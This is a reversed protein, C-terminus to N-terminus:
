KVLGSFMGTPQSTATYTFCSANASAVVTIGTSFVAPPTGNFSLSAVGTTAGAIPICYIPTVAGTSPASTLNFVLMNGTNTGENKFVVGYLNGGSAKLVHSVESVTSVVPTIGITNGTSPALNVAFPPTLTAAIVANTLTSDNSDSSFTVRPIGAGSLGTGTSVNTGGFQAVNVNPTSGGGGFTVPLPNTTSVPTCSQNNKICIYQPMQANAVGVWIFLGAAVAMLGILIQDTSNNIFTRM